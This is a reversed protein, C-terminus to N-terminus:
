GFIIGRSAYVSEGGEDLTLGIAMITAVMGDIKDKSKAKDPKINGAADQQCVVNSAQWTLVPNNHKIKHALVLRELEKTPPNMSAFGQGFAVMQLGEGTLQTTLQTSNWRDVAVKQINYSRHLELIKEKIVDYDTINGETLTLYGRDAWVKAEPKDKIAEEPLFFHPLITHSEASYMSFCAYDSVSALDLGGVFTEKKCEELDPQGCQDWHIMPLWSEIYKDLWQNLYYQRFKREESPMELARKFEDMIFDLELFDGLAPMAKYFNAVDKWDEEPGVEHIIPLYSEDQVIGDRVKKAYDYEQYCLSNRDNGATTISILLPEPTAGFSSTLADWLKRNQHALLEDIIVVSPGAGLNSPGESSLAEIFSGKADWVIRKSYPIVRLIKKLTPSQKVMDAIMTWLFGAQRRSAAGIYISQGSKGSGVLCYLAVCAILFSKGNKRPLQLLVKKIWRKGNADVNGFIERIIKEQWPRLCVPKGWHNGVLKLKNIFRIAREGPDVENSM